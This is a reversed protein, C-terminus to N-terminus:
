KIYKTINTGAIDRTECKHYSRRQRGGWIRIRALGAGRYKEWYVPSILDLMTGSSIRWREYSKKFNVTYVAEGSGDRKRAILEVYADENDTYVINIQDALTYDDDFPEIEGQYFKPDM